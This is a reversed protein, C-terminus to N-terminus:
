SLPVGWGGHKAFLTQLSSFVFLVVNFFLALLGFSLAFLRCDASFLLTSFFSVALLPLSLGQFEPRHPLQFSAFMLFSLMSISSLPLTIWQIPIKRPQITAPRM